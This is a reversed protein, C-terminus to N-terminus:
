TTGISIDEIEDIKEKATDIWGHIGDLSNKMESIITKILVLEPKKLIYLINLRKELKKFMYFLSIMARKINKNVLEIM